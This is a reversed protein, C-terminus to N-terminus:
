PDATATSCVRAFTLHFDIFRRRRRRRVRMGSLQDRGRASRDMQAYLCDLCANLLLDSPLFRSLPLTPTFTADTEHWVLCIWASLGTRAYTVVRM